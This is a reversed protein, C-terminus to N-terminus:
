WLKIASTLPGNVQYSETTVTLTVTCRFNELSCEGDVAAFKLTPHTILHFDKHLHSSETFKSSSFDLTFVHGKMNSDILLM